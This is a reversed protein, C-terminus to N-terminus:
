KTERLAHVFNGDLLVQLSDLSPSSLFFRRSLSLVLLFHNKKSIGITGVSRICRQKWFMQRWWRMPLKSRFEIAVALAGQLAGQVRSQDQLLAPGQAHGQPAQPAHHSLSLSLSYSSSLLPRFRVVVVVVVVAVVVAARTASTLLEHKERAKAYSAQDKETDEQSPALSFLTSVQLHLSRSSSRPAACPVRSFFLLFHSLFFCAAALSIKKKM